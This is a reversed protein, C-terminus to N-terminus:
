LVEKADILVPFGRLLSFLVLYLSYWFSFQWSFPLVNYRMLALVLFFLVKSAGYLGRVFRSKVFTKGWWSHMMGYVSVNKGAARGRIADTLAARSLVIIPAWAPVYDIALFTLWLVIETIRDGVVDLLSGIVTECKYRRAVYGDLSDMAFAIILLIVSLWWPGWAYYVLVAVVFVLVTRIITIWDAPTM